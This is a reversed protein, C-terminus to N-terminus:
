ALYGDVFHSLDDVVQIDIADFEALQPLLELTKLGHGTRVLVPKCGRGLAAQLDRLSDGIFPAGSADCNFEAEIAEIMGTKPKRCLCNDEPKHPCYFIAAVQGGAAEVLSTLKDHMAELDDLDFEGRGLGSQNTAIVVTFGAQSLKAIAEISGPLPIWEDVSRIFGDPQENIVGDRDLIVLHNGDYGPPQFNIDMFSM